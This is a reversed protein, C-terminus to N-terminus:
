HATRTKWVRLQLLRLGLWLVCFWLWREGFRDYVTRTKPCYLAAHTATREGSRTLTGPVLECTARVNRASAPIPAASWLDAFNWRAFLTMDLHM